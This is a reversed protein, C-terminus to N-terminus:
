PRGRGADDMAASAPRAYAPPPATRSTRLVLRVSDATVHGTVRRMGDGRTSLGVATLPTARDRDPAAVAEAVSLPSGVTFRRAQWLASWGSPLWGTATTM